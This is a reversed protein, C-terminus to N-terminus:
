FCNEIFPYEKLQSSFLSNLDPFTVMSSLFKLSETLLESSERDVNLRENNFLDTKAFNVLSNIIFGTMLVANAFFKNDAPNLISSFENSHMIVRSFSTLATAKATHILQDIDQNGSTSFHCDNIQKATPIVIMQTAVYINVLQEHNTIIKFFVNSENIKREGLAKIFEHVVILWM